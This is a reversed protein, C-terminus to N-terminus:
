RLTGGAWSLGAVALFPSRHYAGAPRTVCPVAWPAPWGRPAGGWGWPAPPDPESEIVGVDFLDPGSDYARGRQQDKPPQRSGSGAATSRLSSPWDRPRPGDTACLPRVHLVM